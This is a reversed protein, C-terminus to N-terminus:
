FRFQAGVSAYHVLTFNYVEDNDAGGELIRYGARVDIRGTVAVVLAALVDEARGQPAALADGELLFAAPDSFQWLVRFHVIPVFGVNKKEAAIGNGEFAIRADRIKATFGVGLELAESRHFDWRYTLRYSNFKYSANLPTRAPFTAEQFVLAHDLRGTADLSLPAFLVGLHHRDSFDYLLRIRYFAAPDTSLEESLSVLTGGNGPIRVDNYGSFVAGTEVDLAFQSCATLTFVAFLGLSRVIFKSLISM